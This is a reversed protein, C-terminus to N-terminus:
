KTQAAEFADIILKTDAFRASSTSAGFAGIIFRTRGDETLKCSALLSNQGAISGTKIGTALPCYYEGDPKLILNKNTWTTTQGSYYRVRDSYIGVCDAIAPSKLAYDSILVLDNATTYHDTTSLGYPDSLLTGQCGARRTWDNLGVMFRNVAEDPTLDPGSDLAIRRGAEVAVVYACDCGSAVIMGEVLMSMKLQQNKYINAKVTGSPVVSLAEETVKIVEDKDIVTLAYLASWVCTISAPLLTRDTGQRFVFDGAELDYVFVTPSQLQGSLGNCIEAYDPPVYPADTTVPDTKVDSQSGPTDPGPNKNSVACKAILLAVILVCLALALYKMKLSSQAAASQKKKKKNKETSM